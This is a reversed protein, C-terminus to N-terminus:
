RSKTLKRLKGLNIHDLSVGDREGKPTEMYMPTKCFQPDNLLHRFPEIGLKGEGIHAHRDVRSGLDKLSDNLHFACIRKLGIVRDFEQMTRRYDEISALPYGAAFIHCTDVCVGLREPHEVCDIISALHEFRHGLNTGQGATTELWIQIKVTPAQRHVWNLAEVVKALGEAETSSTFSGPHMVLGALGLAEARNVEELLAERSRVWLVEDPSAVNILYSDHACPSVIGTREIADRFLRIDEDTLPKGLWQNNNKTFIQVCDMKLEAAADVAKYYGGAISMHAGLIRKM